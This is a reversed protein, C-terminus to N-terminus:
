KEQMQRYSKIVRQVLYVLVALLLFSTLIIDSTAPNKIVGHVFIGIFVFIAIVSSILTFKSDAKYKRLSFSLVFLATVAIIIIIYEKM